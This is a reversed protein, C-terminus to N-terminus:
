KIKLVYKGIDDLCNLGIQMPFDDLKNIQIRIGIIQEKASNRVANHLYISIKLSTFTHLSYAKKCAYSINKFFTLIVIFLFACFINSRFRSKPPVTRDTPDNKQIMPGVRASANLGVDFIHHHIQITNCLLSEILLLICCFCVQCQILQLFWNLRM